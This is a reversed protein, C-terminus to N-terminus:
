GLLLPAILVSNTCMYMRTYTHINKCVDMCVYMCVSCVYVHMHIDQDQKDM